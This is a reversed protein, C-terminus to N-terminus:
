MLCGSFLARVEAALKSHDIDVMDGVKGDDPSWMSGSMGTGLEEDQLGM